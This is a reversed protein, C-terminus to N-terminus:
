KVYKKLEKLLKIQNADKIEETNEYVVPYQQALERATEMIKDFNSAEFVLSIKYFPM